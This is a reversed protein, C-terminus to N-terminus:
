GETNKCADDVVQVADTKAYVCHLSINLSDYFYTM